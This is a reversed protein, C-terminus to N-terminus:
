NSSVYKKIGKLWLANALLLGLVDWLTLFIFATVPVGRILIQWSKNTVFGYPVVYMLIKIIAKPYIAIPRTAADYLYESLGLLRTSNEFFFVLTVFLQNVIYVCLVALIIFLLFVIINFISFVNYQIYLGVIFPIVVLVNILCSYDQRFCSYYYLSNVPRLLVTDLEGELIVEALNEHASAFFFQYLYTILSAVSIMLLYDQFSYGVIDDTLSFLVMGLICEVTFFLVGFTATIVATARYIFFSKLSQRSFVSFLSFYKKM